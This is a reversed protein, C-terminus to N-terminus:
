ALGHHLYIETEMGTAPRFGRPYVSQHDVCLRLRQKGVCNAGALAKIDELTMVAETM